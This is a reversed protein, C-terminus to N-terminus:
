KHRQLLNGLTTEVVNEIPPRTEVRVAEGAAPPEYHATLTEMDELRADSLVLAETSRTALRERVVADSAVAELFVVNAGLPLTSRLAGRQASRGFTADLVIGAGLQVRELARRGLAAYVAETREPTYLWTRTETSAREYLPLGAQEKRVRDSSVVEWGLAEGLAGALTSKGVGIRGMVVVVAPGAGCVAYRLALQYYRKARARSKQREGEPVETEESRLSEVKARVYARYGAYFDIVRELTADDLARAMEAVFYRALEHCGAADLDMALFTIDSAVDIARLRESFEICDYICLGEPGAHIHELRLDGHGDIIRGESCRQELLGAHTDYFQDVSARITNYAPQGILDGVYRATQEFNEDTSIRLAEVRGWAAREPSPSQRHYFVSLTGVVRDIHRATLRGAALLDHLFFREDLQHMRVAFDVVEGEEGFVLRGERRRIPVVSDYIRACLRRNLRIEEECFHRRKELTSFDLFGFDVAKKVKYVYPSAIAVISIHTQIIRVAAPRHPYSAPDSLFPFLESHERDPPMSTSAPPGSPTM